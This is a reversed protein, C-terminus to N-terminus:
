VRNEPGPSRFCINRRVKIFAIRFLDPINQFADISPKADGRMHFYKFDNYLRDSGFMKPNEVNQSTGKGARGSFVNEALSAGFCTPNLECALQLFSCINIIPGLPDLFVICCTALAPSVIHPWLLFICTPAFASFVLPGCPKPPQMRGDRLRSGGHPSEDHPGSIIDVDSIKKVPNYQGVPALCGHKTKLM